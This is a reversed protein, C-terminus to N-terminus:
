FGSDCFEEVWIMHNVCQNLWIVAKGTVYIHKCMMLMLGVINGLKTYEKQGIESPFIQRGSDTIDAFYLKFWLM